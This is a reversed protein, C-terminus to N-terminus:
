PIYLELPSIILKACDGVRSLRVCTGHSGLVKYDQGAEHLNGDLTKIPRSAPIALRVIMGRQINELSLTKSM